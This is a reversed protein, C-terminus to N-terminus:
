DEAELLLCLKDIPRRLINTKTQVLVSRVLGKPGPLTKVVRALPWSNRPATEDVIVVIDNVHFNRRIKVWKQRQQMLALYEKTWRRWFLDALYQPTKYFYNSYSGLSMYCMVELKIRREVEYMDNM